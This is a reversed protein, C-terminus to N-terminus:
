ESGFSELLYGVASFQFLEPLPSLGGFVGVKVFDFEIDDDHGPDVVIFDDVKSFKGKFPGPGDAEDFEHGEAFGDKCIEIRILDNDIIIDDFFANDFFEPGEDGYFGTGFHADTGGLDIGEGIGFAPDTKDAGHALGEAFGAVSEPEGRETFESGAEEVAAFDVEDGCEVGLGVVGSEDFEEFLANAHPGGLM